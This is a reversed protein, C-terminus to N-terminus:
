RRIKECLREKEELRFRMEALQVNQNEIIIERESFM